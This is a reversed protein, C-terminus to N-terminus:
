SDLDGEDSFRDLMEDHRKVALELELRIQQSLSRHERKSVEQLAKLTKREIRINTAALTKGDRTVIDM